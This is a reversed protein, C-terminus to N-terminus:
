GGDEGGAEGDKNTGVVDKLASGGEVFAVFCLVAVGFDFDCVGGDVEHRKDDAAGVDEDLSLVNDGTKLAIAAVGM